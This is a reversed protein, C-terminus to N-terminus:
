SRRQAGTASTSSRKRRSARQLAASSSCAPPATAPSIMRCWGTSINSGSSCSKLRWGARPSLPVALARCVSRGHSASRVGLVVGSNGILDFRRFLWRQGSDTFRTFDHPGEHVAQLFPTEAYVLGGPRLVRRIEEVVAHPELVHELVAQVWVADFTADAFPMAHVDAILQVKPSAYLDFGALRVDAADYLAEAGSGVAGGGVVLVLPSRQEERLMSLLREANAAARENYALLHRYIFRRLRGPDRRREAGHDAELDSRRIVSRDFDILAPMGHSTPFPERLACGEACRLSPGDGALSGRCSPCRVTEAIEALPVIPM